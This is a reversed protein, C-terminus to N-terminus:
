YLMLWNTLNKLGKNLLTNLRKVGIITLKERM